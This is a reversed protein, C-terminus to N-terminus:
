FGVMKQWVECKWNRSNEKIIKEFTDCRLPLDLDTTNIGLSECDFARIMGKHSSLKIRHGDVEFEWDFLPTEGMVWQWEKWPTQDFRPDDEFVEQTEGWSHIWSAPNLKPNLESLNMVKSRVSHISKTSLLTVSSKLSRDLNELEGSILLTGHHLSRDKTQKYASGSVKKTSGDDQRVVLDHRANIEVNVNFAKLRTQVEILAQDKHFGKLPRICCFNVNGSDHWVTGGGSPRRVLPKKNEFLWGMDCELWPNQFRGVVVCPDNQYLFWVPLEQDYHRLLWDEVALHFFPNKSKSIFLPM